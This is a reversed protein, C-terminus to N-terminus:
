RRRSDARGRCSSPSTPGGRAAAGAHDRRDLRNGAAADRPDDAAAPLHVGGRVEVGGRLGVADLGEHARPNVGELRRVGVGMHVLRQPDGHRPAAFAAERQRPHMRPDGQGAVDLRGAGGDGAPEAHGAEIEHLELAPRQVLVRQGVGGQAEGRERRRAPQPM